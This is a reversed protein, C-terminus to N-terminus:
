RLLEPYILDRGSPVWVLAQTCLADNLVSKPDLMAWWWRRASWPVFLHQIQACFVPTSVCCLM